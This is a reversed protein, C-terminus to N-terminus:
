PPDRQKTHSLLCKYINLSPKRPLAISRTNNSDSPLHSHTIPDYEMVAAYEHPPDCLDLPKRMISLPLIFFSVFHSKPPPQQGNSPSTYSRASRLDAVTPSSYLLANGHM